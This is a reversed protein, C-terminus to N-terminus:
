ELFEVEGRGIGRSGKGGTGTRMGGRWRIIYFSESVIFIV